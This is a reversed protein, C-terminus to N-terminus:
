QNMSLCIMAFMLLFPIKTFFAVGGHKMNSPHNAPVFTYDQLLTEPLEISDNLNTGCVSILDYNFISNHAEILDVRRFNDKTLSNLNWNM